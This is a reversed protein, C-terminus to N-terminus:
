KWYGKDYIGSVKGKKKAKERYGISREAKEKTDSRGVVKGTSKEIIEYKGNRFLTEYPM